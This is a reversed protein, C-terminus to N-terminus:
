ACAELQTVTATAIEAVRRVEDRTMARVSELQGVAAEGAAHLLMLATARVEDDEDRLLSAASVTLQDPAAEIRALTRLAERRVAPDEDEVLRAIVKACSQAESGAEGIREVAERRVAPDQDRLHKQLCRLPRRPKGSIQILASACAMQLRVSSERFLPKLATVALLATRGMGALADVCRLRLEDNDAKYLTRLVPKLAPAGVQALAFASHWQVEEDPDALAKCLQPVAPEAQEGMRGLAGMAQIRTAAAQTSDLAAALSSSAGAREFITVALQRISATAHTMQEELAEVIPTPVQKARSIASLLMLKQAIDATRLQKKIQAIRQPTAM